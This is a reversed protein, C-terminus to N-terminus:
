QTQLAAGGLPIRISVKTGRGSESEISLKGRLRALVLAVSALGTGADPTSPAASDITSGVQAEATGCRNDRVTLLLHGFPGDVAGGGALESDILLTGGLSLATAANLAVNLLIGDLDARQADVCTDGSVLTTSVGVDHGAIRMLVPDFERFVRNLEMSPEILRLARDVLLEDVLSLGTELLRDDQGPRDPRICNSSGQRAEELCARIFLFVLRVDHLLHM